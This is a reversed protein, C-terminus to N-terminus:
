NVLHPTTFQKERSLNVSGSLVFCESLFVFNPGPKCILYFLFNLEIFFITITENVRHIKNLFITLHCILFYVSFLLCLYLYVGPSRLLLTARSLLLPLTPSPHLSVPLKDESM